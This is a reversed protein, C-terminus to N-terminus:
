PRDGDVSIYWVPLQRKPEVALFSIPTTVLISWLDLFVNEGEWYYGCSRTKVPTCFTRNQTRIALPEPVNTFSIKFDIQDEFEDHARRTKSLTRSKRMDNM